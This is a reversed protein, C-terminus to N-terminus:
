NALRELGKKASELDPKIKLAQQYAEKAAQTDGKKALVEGYSDWCNAIHPFLETNLQFIEEAEKLKSEEMLAYGVNNLIIDKPDSPHFNATVEAFHERLYGIGKETYTRYSNIIAPLKAESPEKGTLIKYIGNSIQEAVPEDMNALVLISINEKLIQLLSSNHGNTGGAQDTFAMPEEYSSSIRNFYNDDSRVKASILKEGYYFHQYFSLLDDATCWFGGDPRPEAIVYETNEIGRLIQMYGNTRDTRNKINSIYTDKLDLANIIRERVNEIYSKGTVKEVISGLIVYGMNSYEHETGPPFMLATEKAMSMITQMNKKEYPLDVYDWTEYDGFGSAHEILQRITIESTGEIQFGDLYKVMKDDWKLKGEAILQLVIVRTFSKNMSGILFKNQLTNAINKERNALGFAKQYVPKGKGAIVVVGSFIDLDTYQKVLTDVKNQVEQDIIVSNHNAEAPHQDNCAALLFSYFGLIVIKM